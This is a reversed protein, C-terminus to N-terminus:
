QYVGSVGTVSVRLQCVGSVGTVSVSVRCQCVDSVCESVCAVSMCGQCTVSVDRRARLETDKM